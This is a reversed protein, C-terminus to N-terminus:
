EMEKCYLIPKAFFFNVGPWPLTLLFSHLLNHPSSHLPDFRPFFLFGILKVPGPDVTPLLFFVAAWVFSVIRTWFLFPSLSTRDDCFFFCSLPPRPRFFILIWPHLGHLLVGGSFFACIAVVCRLPFTLSRLLSFESLYHSPPISLFPPGAL